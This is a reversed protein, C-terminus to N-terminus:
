IIVREVERTEKKIKIFGSKLLVFFMFRSLYSEIMGIPWLIPQFIIITAIAVFFPAVFFYPRIRENLNLAIDDAMLNIVPAVDIAGNDYIIIESSPIQNQSIGIKKGSSGLTSTITQKLVFEVIQRKAATNESSQAKDGLQQKLQSELQKNFVSVFPKTITKVLEPTILANNELKAQSQFFNLIAFMGLIFLIGKRLVPFFLESPVLKVFIDLRKRTERSIILLFCVFLISSLIATILSGKVFAFTAVFILASFWYISHEHRDRTLDILFTGFNLFYGTILTGLLLTFSIFHRGDLFGFFDLRGIFVAFLFTFFLFIIRVILPKNM